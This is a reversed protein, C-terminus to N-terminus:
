AEEAVRIAAEILEWSFFTAVLSLMSRFESPSPNQNAHPNSRGQFLARRPSGPPSFLALSWCHNARCIRSCSRAPQQWFRPRRRRAIIQGACDKGQGLRRREQFMDPGRKFWGGSLKGLVTWQGSTQAQLCSLLSCDVPAASCRVSTAHTDAAMAGRGVSSTLTVDALRNRVRVVARWGHVDLVM